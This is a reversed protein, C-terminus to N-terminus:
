MMIKYVLIGDSFKHLPMEDTFIETFLIHFLVLLFLNESLIYGTRLEPFPLNSPM